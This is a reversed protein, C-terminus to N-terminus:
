DKVFICLLKGIKLISDFGYVLYVVMFDIVGVEFNVFLVEGLFGSM